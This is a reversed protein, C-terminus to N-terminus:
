ELFEFIETCEIRNRFELLYKLEDGTFEDVSEFVIGSKGIRSCNSNKVNVDIKQEGEVKVTYLIEFKSFEPNNINSYISFIGFAVPIWDQDSDLKHLKIKVDKKLLLNQLQISSTNSKASTPTSLSLTSLSGQKLGYVSKLKSPVGLSMIDDQLNSFSSMSSSNSPKEMDFIGSDYSDSIKLISKDDNFNRIKEFQDYIENMTSVNMCRITLTIKSASNISELCRIQLDRATSKSVTTFKNSLPVLLNPIKSDTSHFSLSFEKTTETSLFKLTNNQINDSGIIEWKNIKASWKSLIVSNKVVKIVNSSSLLLEEENTLQRNSSLSTNNSFPSPLEPESIPQRTISTNIALKKYNRNLSAMTERPKYISENSLSPSVQPAITTPSKISTTSPKKVFIDFNPEASKKFINFISKRKKLTKSKEFELPTKYKDFKDQIETTSKNLTENLNLDKNSKKTLIPLSIASSNFEEVKVSSSSSISSSPPTSTSTSTSTPTPLLNPLNSIDHLISKSLSETLSDHRALIASSKRLTNPIPEEIQLGCGIKNSKMKELNEFRNNFDNSSNKLQSILGNWKVMQKADPCQLFLELKEDELEKFLHISSVDNRGISFENIKLLPFMLSRGGKRKISCIALHNQKLKFVEVIQFKDFKGSSHVLKFEFYDRALIDNIKFYQLTKKFENNELEMVDGFSFDNLDLNLNEAEDKDKAMSLLRKLKLMTVEDIEVLDRLSKMKKYLQNVRILPQKMHQVEMEIMDQTLKYEGVFRVYVPIVKELWRMFGSVSFGEFLFRSLENHMEVLRQVTRTMSVQSSPASATTKTISYIHTSTTASLCTLLNLIQSKYADETTKLDSIWLQLGNCHDEDSHIVFSM